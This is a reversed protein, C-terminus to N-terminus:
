RWGPRSSGTSSRRTLEGARRVTWTRSRTRVRHGRPPTFGSGWSGDPARLGRAGFRDRFDATGLKKFLEEAAAARVPDIGPMIAYPYDLSPPAPELYVVTLPIPPRRANYEIVDEESLAAVSLASAISAPDTSRPFRALLDVRLASKGTALTRLLATTASQADEAQQAAATVALLGALGAADRTPEM